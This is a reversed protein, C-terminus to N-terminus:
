QRVPCGRCLDPLGSVAVDVDADWLHYGSIDPACSPPLPEGEACGVGDQDGSCEM